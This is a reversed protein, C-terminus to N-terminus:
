GAFFMDAEHSYGIQQGMTDVRRCGVFGTRNLRTTQVTSRVLCHDLSGLPPDIPDYDGPLQGSTLLLDLLSPKHGDVDPIRTISPM